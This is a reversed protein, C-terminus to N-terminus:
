EKPRIIVNIFIKGKKKNIIKEIQNRSLKKGDSNKHAKSLNIIMKSEDNVL